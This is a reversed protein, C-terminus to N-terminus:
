VVDRDRVERDRIVTRDTRNFGGWSSWFMMSLLIGVVGVIMLIIGITNLNFGETDVEVAFALIAGIAVLFLSGGIGMHM